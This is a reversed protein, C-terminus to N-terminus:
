AQAEELADFLTRSPETDPTGEGKHSSSEPKHGSREAYWQPPEVEHLEDCRRCRWKYAHQYPWWDHAPGDPCPQRRKDEELYLTAHCSPLSVGSAKAAARFMGRTLDAWRAGRMSGCVSHVSFVGGTFQWGIGHTATGSMCLWGARREGSDEVEPIVAMIWDINAHRDDDAYRGSWASLVDIVTDLQALARRVRPDSTTSMIVGDGLLEERALGHGRDM